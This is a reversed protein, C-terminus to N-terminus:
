PRPVPVRDFPGNNSECAVGPVGGGDLRNPDRPDARLVAQAQAQSIFDTCNYRDGQGIYRTADFGSVPAVPAAPRPTPTSTPPPPVPTATAVVAPAVAVVTPMATPPVPTDTPPLPAATPPVPTDTPPIPTDTPPLPLQTATPPLPTATSPLPTYTPPIPTSTTAPTAVPTRAQATVPPTIESVRIPIATVKATATPMSAQAIATLATRTAAANRGVPSLGYAALGGVCLCLLLAVSGAASGIVIRRRRRSNEPAPTIPLPATADDPLSM